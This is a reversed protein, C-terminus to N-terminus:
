LNIQAKIDHLISKASGRVSCGCHDETLQSIVNSIDAPLELCEVSYDDEGWKTITAVISPSSASDTCYNEEQGFLMEISAELFYLFNPKGYTSIAEKTTLDFRASPDIWPNVIYQGNHEFGVLSEEDQRDMQDLAFQRIDELSIDKNLLPALTFKM